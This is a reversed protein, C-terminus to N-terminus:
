NAQPSLAFGTCSAYSLVGDRLLDLMGDQIGETFANLDRFGSKGLGALVANPINGVGSQLPLLNAPLRGRAVEHQLFEILY